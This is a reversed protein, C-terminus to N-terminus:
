EESVLHKLEDPVIWELVPSIGSQHGLMVSARLLMETDSAYFMGVKFQAGTSTTVILRVAPPDDHGDLDLHIEDTIVFQHEQETM